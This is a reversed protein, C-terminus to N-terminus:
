EDEGEEKLKRLVYGKADSNSNVAGGEESIQDTRNDQVEDGSGETEATDDPPGAASQSDERLEPGILMEIEKQSESVDPSGQSEPSFEELKSQSESIGEEELEEEEAEDEVPLAAPAARKGDSDLPIGEGIVVDFESEGKPLILTQILNTEKKIIRMLKAPGVAMMRPAEKRRFIRDIIGPKKGDASFGPMEIGIFSEHDIESMTIRNLEMQEVATLGQELILVKGQKVESIIFRLREETTMKDFTDKSILNIQINRYDVM